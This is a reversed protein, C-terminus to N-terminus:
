KQSLIKQLYIEWSEAKLFANVGSILYVGGSREVVIQKSGHLRTVPIAALAKESPVTAIEITGKCYKAEEVVSALPLMPFGDLSGQGSNTEEGDTFRYHEWLAAPLQFKGLAAEQKAIHAISAGSRMLEAYSPLHKQVQKILRRVNCRLNARASFDKMKWTRGNWGLRVTHPAWTITRAITLTSTCALGFIAAPLAPLRAFIQLLVDSALHDCSASEYSKGDDASEQGQSDTERASMTSRYAVPTVEKRDSAPRHEPGWQRPSRLTKAHQRQREGM